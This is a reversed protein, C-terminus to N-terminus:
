GLVDLVEFAAREGSEMAGELGRTSQSTHEGAFHIPGSPQSMTEKYKAIMGPRWYAYMGGAYPDKAWSWSRAIRVKGKAAPRAAVLDAIIRAEAQEKTIRNLFEALRGTSFIYMGVAEDGETQPRVRGPSTDMWMGAPLGDNEWYPADTEIFAHFCSGYPMTQIAEAQLGTIRPDFSVFKLASFPLTVIVRKGTFVRGDEAVVEVGAGGTRIGAIPTNRHIAGTMASAMASVLSSNGGEIKWFHPLEPESQAKSFNWVHMMHVSSLDDITHGYGPNTDMGLRIEAESHGNALMMDRLSVDQATIEPEWWSELDDFLSYRDIMRFRYASPTLTKAAGQFPNLEHDAWDKNLINAGKIHIHSGFGSFTTPSRKVGLRDCFDIFRAYMAGVSSGGAEPKGPLDTMTYCRGGIRSKAEVITTTFGESELWSAATLGSLGAGIIVVDASDAAMARKSTLTSAIATGAMLGLSTRRAFSRKASHTM